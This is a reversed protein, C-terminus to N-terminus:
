QELGVRKTLEKFRPDSRMPMFAPDRWLDNLADHSDAYAREMWLFAQGKDGLGAYIKAIGYKDDANRGVVSKLRNLIQVARDREGATAYAWAVDEDREPDKGWLEASRKLESIGEDFKGRLVYAKGLGRHSLADDPFMETVNQLRTIGEDYRGACVDIWAAQSKPSRGIPDLLVAQNAEATAEDFRGKASLFIAYAQHAESYSPNLEIARRIEREAGLWDPHGSELGVGRVMHAEALTEDLALAKESASRAADSASRGEVASLWADSRALGAYAQAYQPDIAVAQEFYHNAQHLEQRGEDRAFLRDKGRAFHFLGKLYAEQAEIDVPHRHPLLAGRGTSLQVRVARAISQSVERQLSLVDQADRDYEDAWLHKEPFAQVLNATIRVRSGSRTLAGEVVADVQLERAIVPITKSTGKYQNVSTHSIVRLADLQGLQTILEETIGDAFYDEAPDGSLNQLPLVAISRIAPAQSAPQAEFRRLASFVPWAMSLAAALIIWAWRFGVRNGRPLRPSPTLSNPREAGKERNDTDGSSVSQASAEIQGIFRYGRRPLTEIFRPEEASDGLADRLRNVANNLGHDFDVFTDASWLRKRIEDRSVLEGPRDLLMTLVEFSQDPLRVVAGDRRRLERSHLNVEFEGFRVLDTSAPSSAM